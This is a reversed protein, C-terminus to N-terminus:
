LDLPYGPYAKDPYILPLERECFMGERRINVLEWKDM